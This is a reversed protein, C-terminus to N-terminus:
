SDAGRRTVPRELLPLLARELDAVRRELPMALATNEAVAEAVAVVRHELERVQDLGIGAVVRDALRRAIV